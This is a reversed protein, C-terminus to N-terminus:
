GAEWGHVCGCRGRAQEEEVPQADEGEENEDEVVHAHVVDAPVPVHFAVQGAGAELGEHQQRGWPAQAQQEQDAAHGGGHRQAAQAGRGEQAPAAQAQQQREQEPHQDHHRGLRIELDDLVDAEVAAVQAEHGQVQAAVAAKAVM